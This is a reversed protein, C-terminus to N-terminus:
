LNESISDSWSKLHPLSNLSQQIINDALNMKHMQTLVVKKMQELTMGPNTFAGGLYCYKCYQNSKSGDKETGREEVNDIPMTCGQCFIGPEM